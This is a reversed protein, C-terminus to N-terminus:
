QHISLTCGRAAIQGHLQSHWHRSPSLPRVMVDPQAWPRSILDLVTIAAFHTVAVYALEHTIQAELCLYAAVMTMATPNVWEEM